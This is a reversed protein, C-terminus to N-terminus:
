FKERGGHGRGDETRFRIGQSVFLAAALPMWGALVPQFLILVGSVAAGGCYLGLVGGQFVLRQLSSGAASEAVRVLGMVLATLTSTVATTAVGPAGLRSLAATQLGMAIALTALLAFSAPGHSHPLLTWGAAFLLLAIKELGILRAAIRPWDANDVGRGLREGLAVGLMFIALVFLSRVADALHGQGLAIGLLVINGTMNSTFVRGLGIFGAADASGAALSLLLVDRTAVPDIAKM